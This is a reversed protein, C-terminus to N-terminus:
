CGPWISPSSRELSVIVQRHEMHLDRLDNELVHGVLVDESSILRLLGKQVDKLSTTVENLM